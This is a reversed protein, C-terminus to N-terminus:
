HIVEMSSEIKKNSKLIDEVTKVFEKEGKKADKTKYKILYDPASIYHVGMGSKEIKKLVGKIVELGDPEFSKLQVSMKLEFEKKGMTKEALEKIKVFWEKKLIKEVREPNKNVTKFADYLTGFNEQLPVIVEKKIESFTTNMDKATIEFLKEIKQDFKYQKIKDNKQKEDVRKISLYLHDGSIRVVKAVFIQNLKVYKRIDSVWGRKVESIHIMGEANYEELEAIASNPSVSKIRCLVLEGSGPFGKKKVM